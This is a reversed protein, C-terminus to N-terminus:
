PPTYRYLAKSETGVADSAGTFGGMVYIADGVAVAGLGHSRYPMAPLATWAGTAPDLREVANSVAGATDEGGFAYLRGGLAAVALSGRASPLPPGADWRDTAPSYAEVSDLPQQDSRRIGPARGGVVYFRGNVAAGGAANRAVALPAATSWTQLAPDFIDHRTLSGSAANNANWGGAVHLRGALEGAAAAFRVAPADPARTWSRAVPDFSQLALGAEGGIAWVRNSTALAAVNDTGRPLRLGASWSNGAIDYVWVTSRTDYGGLVYIQGGFAAVGFKAVGTPLDALRSWGPPLATPLSPEPATGTSTEASGAGGGCAAAAALLAAVFPAMLRRVRTTNHM